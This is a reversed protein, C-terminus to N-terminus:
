GGRGKAPKFFEQPALYVDGRSRSLAVYLKNLTRPPLSPLEGAQLKAMASKTLVVCVEDHHDEGKSGGWTQSHCRYDAHRNYFLKVLDGRARLRDAEEQSEVTVIRAPRESTTKIPIGLKETIFDCVAASCRRSRSLSETDVAIGAERFERLYSDFDKHLNQRTTGDRSTDYTHQRFDGVMLMEVKARALHLLFNFDHSAFDQVEDVYVADFFREVRALVDAAYHRMLAKAIRSVYLRGAGDMYYRRATDKMRPPDSDFNIGRARRDLGALPRYCFSHLFTFYTMVHAGPPMGGHKAIIKARLNALNEETYTFILVRRKADVRGVIETTKGAGAVALLVRKDM